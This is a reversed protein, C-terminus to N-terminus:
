NVDEGMFKKFIDKRLKEYEEDSVQKNAKLEDLEKIKKAANHQKEKGPPTEILKM